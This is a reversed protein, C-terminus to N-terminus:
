RLSITNEDDCLHINVHVMLFSAVCPPFCGERAGVCQRLCVPSSCVSYSSLWCRENQERHNYQRVSLSTIKALYEDGGGCRRPNSLINSWAEVNPIADALDPTIFKPLLLESKWYSILDAEGGRIQM